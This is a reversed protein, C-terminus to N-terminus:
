KKPDCPVLAFCPRDENGLLNSTDFQIPVPGGRYVLPIELNEPIELKATIESPMKVEISDPIGMVQIVEPIGSADIKIEPFEPVVLSIFSPLNGSDISISKPIDIAKIEITKPIVNDNLLKIEHAHLLPQSQYLEIREPLQSNISIFDPINHNVKIEPFKPVVVKIESPIGIDNNDIELRMSEEFDDVFNEDLMKSRAIMGSGGGGGGCVVEVTVSPPTGWVVSVIPAPGFKLDASVNPAPGFKLDPSSITPAPGFKLDPISIIPAPGFNFSGSTPISPAPGFKFTGETPVSPAPGFTFSGGFNTVPAPGFTFSGGFNTAPAPGFTFSGNFSVPKIEIKPITIEPPTVSINFSAPVIDVTPIVIQPINPIEPPPCDFAPITPFIPPPPIPIITPTTPTPEPITSTDRKIPTQIVSCTDNSVTVIPDINSNPAYTHSGAQTSTTSQGDGFDLKFNNYNGNITIVYDITTGECVLGNNRVVELVVDPCLKDDPCLPQSELKEIEDELNLVYEEISLTVDVIQNHHEAIVYGRVWIGEPNFKTQKGGINRACRKFKFIKGASNKEVADYYFLEGSINAFGNEAWQENENDAVPEIEIEESWAANNKTLKAESTNFVLFLTRNSDLGLPYRPQPPFGIAM